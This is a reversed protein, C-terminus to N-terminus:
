APVYKLQREATKLNRRRDSIIAVMGVIDPLSWTEWMLFPGDEPSKSEM